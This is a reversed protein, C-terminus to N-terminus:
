GGGKIIKVYQATLSLGQAATLTPECGYTCRLLETDTTGWLRCMFPRNNYISCRNEDTLFQCHLSVGPLLTMQADQTKCAPIVSDSEPLRDREIQSFPVPGCSTHCLGKCAVQPIKAYIADLKEPAIPM